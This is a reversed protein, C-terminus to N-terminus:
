PDVQRCIALLDFRSEEWTVTGGTKIEGETKKVASRSLLINGYGTEALVWSGRRGSFSYLLRPDLKLYGSEPSSWTMNLLKAQFRPQEKVASDPPYYKVDVMITALLLLEYTSGEEINTSIAELDFITLLSNDNAEITLFRDFVGGEYTAGDENTVIRAIVFSM